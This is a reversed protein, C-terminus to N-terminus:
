SQGGDPLAAGYAGELETLRNRAIKLENEVIPQPADIILLRELRAASRALFRAVMKPDPKAIRQDNMDAEAM